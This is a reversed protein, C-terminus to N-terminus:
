SSSFIQRRYIRIYTIMQQYRHDASTARGRNGTLSSPSVQLKQHKRRRQSNYIHWAAHYTMKYKLHSPSLSFRSVCTALRPRACCRGTRIAKLQRIEQWIKLSFKILSRGNWHAIIWKSYTRWVESLVDQDKNRFIENILGRSSLSSFSAWMFVRGRLLLHECRKLSFNLIFRLSFCYMRASYHFRERNIHIM